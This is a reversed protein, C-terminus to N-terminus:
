RYYNKETNKALGFDAIRCIRNSTLLINRAALDRHICPIMALYEMGNSIQMAFSILDSTALKENKQKGDPLLRDTEMSIAWQPDQQFQIYSFWYLSFKLLSHLCERKKAINQWYLNSRYYHRFLRPQM